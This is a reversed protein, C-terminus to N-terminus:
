IISALGCMVQKTKLHKRPMERDLASTSEWYTVEGHLHSAHLHGHVQGATSPAVDNDLMSASALFLLEKYTDSSTPNKKKKKTFSFGRLHAYSSSSLRNLM